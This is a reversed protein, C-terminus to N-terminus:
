QLPSTTPAIFPPISTYSWWNKVTGNSPPSNDPQRGPREIIYFDKNIKRLPWLTFLICVNTTTYSTQAFLSSYPCLKSWQKFLILRKCSKIGGNNYLILIYTYTIFKYIYLTTHKSMEILWRWPTQLFEFSKSFCCM